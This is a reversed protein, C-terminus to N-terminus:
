QPRPVDPLRNNLIADAVLQGVPEPDLLDFQEGPIGLCLLTVGINKPRLYIALGESIQVIAAKWRM